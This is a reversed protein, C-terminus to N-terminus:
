KSFLNMGAGLYAITLFKILKGAWVVFFYKYVPVKTAGAVIGALDFAPNPIVALVFLTWLGYKQMWGEVKKVRKDNTVFEKGGVGAYYGTLEGITAGLSSVVGVLFPNLFAGGVFATLIAPMPLVITANGILSLLFIGFYGLSQLYVLKERLLFISLSILIASSVLLHGKHKKFFDM